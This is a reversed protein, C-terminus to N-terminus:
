RRTSRTTKRKPKLQIEVYKLLLLAKQVVEQDADKLQVRVDNVYVFVNTPTEFLLIDRNWTIKKFVLSLWRLGIFIEKLYNLDTDRTLYLKLSVKSLMITDYQNKVRSFNLTLSAIAHEINPMFINISIYGEKSDPSNLIHVKTYNNYLRLQYLKNTDVNKFIDAIYEKIETASKFENDVIKANYGESFIATVQNPLLFDPSLVTRPATKAALELQQSPRLGSIPLGKSLISSQIEPPLELFKEFQPQVSPVVPPQVVVTTPQSVTATSTKSKTSKRPKSPAVGCGKM